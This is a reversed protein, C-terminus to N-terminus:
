GLWVADPFLQTSDGGVAVPAGEEPIDEIQEGGLWVPVSELPMPLPTTVPPVPAAREEPEDAEDGSWYPLDQIPVDVHPQYEVIQSPTAARAGSYEFPKRWYGQPAWLMEGNEVVKRCLRGEAVAVDAWFSATDNSPDDVWRGVTHGQQWVGNDVLRRAARAVIERSVGTVRALRDINQGLLVAALLVTAMDRAPTDQDGSGDLRAVRERIELRSPQVLSTEAEVVRSNLDNSMM